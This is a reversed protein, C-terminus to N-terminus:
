LWTDDGQTWSLLLRFNAVMDGHIRPNGADLNFLVLVVVVVQCVEFSGNFSTRYNSVCIIGKQHLMLQSKLFSWLLQCYASVVNGVWRWICKCFKTKNQSSRRALACGFYFVEAKESIPRGHHAFDFRSEIWDRNSDCCLNSEFKARNSELVM